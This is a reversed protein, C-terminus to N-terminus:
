CLKSPRKAAIPIYENMLIKKLPGMRPVGVKLISVPSRKQPKKEGCSEELLQEGQRTGAM